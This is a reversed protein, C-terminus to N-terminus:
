MLRIQGAMAAGQRGWDACHREAGTCGLTLQSYRILPFEASAMVWLKYRSLPLAPAM